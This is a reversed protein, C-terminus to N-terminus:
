YAAMNDSLWDRGDHRWFYVSEAERLDRVSGPNNVRRVRYVWAVLERGSNEYGQRQDANEWKM